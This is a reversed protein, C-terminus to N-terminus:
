VVPNLTPTSGDVTGTFYGIGGSVALTVSYEQGITPDIGIFNAEKIGVTVTNVKYNGDGDPVMLVLDKLAKATGSSEKAWDEIVKYAGAAETRVFKLTIDSVSQGLFATIPWGNKNTVQYQKTTRTYKLGPAGTLDNGIDTYVTMDAGAKGAECVFAKGGIASYAFQAGAM